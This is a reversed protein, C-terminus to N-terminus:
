WLLTGTAFSPPTQTARCSITAINQGQHNVDFTLRLLTYMM